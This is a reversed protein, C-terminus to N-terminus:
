KLYAYLTARSIGMERAIQSKKDGSAVRQKIEAIKSDTMSRKRGKFAGKAKAIEIGERQRERILAREFEAFAGMISLTLNAIPTDDNAFTLNEKLFQVQIGRGTLDKVIKRLDDLNRALRDLSQVIVTDGERVYELMEKLAPRDTDKGSVKETFCRSIKLGALQVEQRETKQDVSSVRIYGVRQGSM